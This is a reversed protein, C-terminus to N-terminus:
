VLSFRFQHYLIYLPVSRAKPFSVELRPLEIDAIRIRSKQQEKNAPAKKQVQVYRNTPDQTGIYQCPVGSKISHSSILEVNFLKKV